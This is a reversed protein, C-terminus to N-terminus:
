IIAPNIRSRTDKVFCVFRSHKANLKIAFRKQKRGSGNLNYSSINELKVQCRLAFSILFSSCNM